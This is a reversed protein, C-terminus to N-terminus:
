CAILEFDLELR